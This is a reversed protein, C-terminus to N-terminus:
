GNDDREDATSRKKLRTIDFHSLRDGRVAEEALPQPQAEV